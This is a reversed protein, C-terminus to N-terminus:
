AGPAATFTVNVTGRGAASTDKTSTAVVAVTTSTEDAAVTLLGDASIATGSAHAGVLSWTVSPDDAVFRQRAGKAVTWEFKGTYPQIDVGTWGVSVSSQWAWKEHSVWNAAGRDIAYGATATLGQDSAAPGLLKGGSYTKGFTVATGGVTLTSTRNLRTTIYVTNGILRLDRDSAGSGDFVKADAVSTVLRAAGSADQAYYETTGGVGTSLTYTVPSFVQAPSTLNGLGYFSYATVTGDVTTGGGGQQAEYAYVSAVKYSTTLASRDDTTLGKVHKGDVTLSLSSYVPEFGWNQLTVAVQSEGAGTHLTFDRGPKLALTDGHASHLTLHVDSPKLASADAGRPWTVYFDDAATDALNPEGGAGVWTWRPRASRSPPDSVKDALPAIVAQVPTGDGYLADADSTYNYGYISVHVRFTQAAVPLGNYTLGGVRLNFTYNGQGDGGLCSWERGSNTDALPYGHMDLALDGQQLAYSTRGQKFSHTLSDAGLTYEDPFYGDGSALQVTSHSDDIKGNDLGPLKLALEAKTNKDFSVVGGFHEKLTSKGYTYASGTIDSTVALEPVVYSGARTAAPTYARHGNGAHLAVAPPRVYLATPGNGSFGTIASADVRVTLGSGDRSRTAHAVAADGTFAPDGSANVFWDTVDSGSTTRWQASAAARLTLTYARAETIKITSGTLRYYDAARVTVSGSAATDNTHEATVRTTVSPPAAQAPVSMATAAALAAATVLVCAAGRRRPQFPM